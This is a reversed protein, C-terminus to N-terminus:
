DIPQQQGEHAVLVTHTTRIDSDVRAVGDARSATKAKPDIDTKVPADAAGPQPQTRGIIDLELSNRSSPAPLDSGAFEM